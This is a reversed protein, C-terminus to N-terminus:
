LLDTVCSGAYQNCGAPRLSTFYLSTPLTSKAKTIVFFFCRCSAMGLPGCTEECAFLNVFWIWSVVILNEMFLAQKIITICHHSQEWASESLMEQLTKSMNWSSSYLCGNWTTKPCYEATVSATVGWCSSATFITVLYWAFERSQSLNLASLTVAELLCLTHWVSGEWGAGLMMLSMYTVWVSLQGSWGYSSPDTLLVSYLCWVLLCHRPMNVEALIWLNSSTRVSNDLTDGITFATKLYFAQVQDLGWHPSLLHWKRPLSHLHWM